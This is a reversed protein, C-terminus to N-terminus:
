PPLTETMNTKKKKRAAGPRGPAAPLPQGQRPTGAPSAIPHTLPQSRRPTGARGALGKPSRASGARTPSADCPPSHRPTGARGTRPSHRAKGPRGPSAPTEKKKTEAVAPETCTCGDRQQNPPAGDGNTQPATTHWGMAATGGHCHDYYNNNYYNYYNDYYYHGAGM